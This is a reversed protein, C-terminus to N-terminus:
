DLVFLHLDSAKKGFFLVHVVVVTRPKLRQVLRGFDDELCYIFREDARNQLPLNGVSLRRKPDRPLFALQVAVGQVLNVPQGSLHFLEETPLALCELKQFRLPQKQVRIGDVLQHQPLACLHHHELIHPIEVRLFVRDDIARPPYDNPKSFVEGTGDHLQYGSFFHHDLSGVKTDVNGVHAAAYALLNRQAQRPCYSYVLALALRQIEDAHIHLVEEGLPLKVNSQAPCPGGLVQKHQTGVAATGMQEAICGNVAKVGVHSSVLVHLRLHPILLECWYRLAEMCSYLLRSFHLLCFCSLGFFLLDQFLFPGSFALFRLSLALFRSHCLCFLLQLKCLLLRLALLLLCSSIAIQLLPGRGRADAKM